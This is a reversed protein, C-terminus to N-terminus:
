LLCAFVQTLLVGHRGIENRATELVDRHNRAGLRREKHVVVQAVRVKDLRQNLDRRRARRRVVLRDREVDRLVRIEHRVQPQDDHSRANLRVTAVAARADVPRVSPRVREDVAHVEDNARVGGLSAVALPHLDVVLDRVVEVLRTGLKRALAVRHLLQLLVRHRVLTQVNVRLEPERLVRTKSQRQQANRQLRHAQLQVRAREVFQEDALAVAKSRRKTHALLLNHAIRVNAESRVCLHDVERLVLAVGDKLALVLKEKLLHLGSARDRVVGAARRARADDAHREIEAVQDAREVPGHLLLALVLGVVPKGVVANATLVRHHRDVELQVVRRHELLLLARVEAQHLVALGLAKHRELVDVLLREVELRPRGVGVAVEVKRAELVVREIEHKLRINPGNTDRDPSASPIAHSKAIAHTAREERLEM